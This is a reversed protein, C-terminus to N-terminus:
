VNHSGCRVRVELNLYESDALTTGLGNVINLATGQGSSAHNVLAASGLAVSTISDAAGAWTMVAFVFERSSTITVPTKRSVEGFGTVTSGLSAAATVTGVAMYAFASTANTVIRAAVANLGAAPLINKLVKEEILKGDAGFKRATWVGEFEMFSNYLDRENM